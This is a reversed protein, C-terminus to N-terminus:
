CRALIMVGHARKDQLSLLLAGEGATLDKVGIYLTSADAGLRSGQERNGDVHEVCIPHFLLRDVGTLKEDGFWREAWGGCAFRWRRYTEKILRWM